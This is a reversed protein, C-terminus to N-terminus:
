SALTLHLNVRFVRPINYRYASINMFTKYHKNQITKILTQLM